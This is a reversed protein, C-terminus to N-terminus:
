WIDKWMSEKGLCYSFLWLQHNKSYKLM